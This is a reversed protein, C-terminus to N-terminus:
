FANSWRVQEPLPLSAEFVLGDPRYDFPEIAVDGAYGGDSLARLLPAFRDSGQGPVRRNRDNSYSSPM